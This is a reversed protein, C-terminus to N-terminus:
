ASKLAQIIKKRHARGYDDWSFIMGVYGYPSDTSCVLKIVNDVENQFRGLHYGTDKLVHNAVLDTADVLCFKCAKPDLVQIERGRKDRAWVKTTGNTELLHGVVRIAERIKKKSLKQM